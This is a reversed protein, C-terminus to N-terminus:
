TDAPSLVCPCLPCSAYSADAPLPPPAPCPPLLSLPPPFDPLLSFPCCPFRSPHAPGAPLHSCHTPPMCFAPRAPCVTPPVSAIVALTACCCHCNDRCTGRAKVGM